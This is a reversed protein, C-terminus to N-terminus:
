RAGIPDLSIPENFLSSRTFSSRTKRKETVPNRLRSARLPYDEQKRYIVAVVRPKSHRVPHSRPHLKIYRHCKQRDVTINTNEHKSSLGDLSLRPRSSKNRPRKKWLVLLIRSPLEKSRSFRIGYNSRASSPISFRPIYFVRETLTHFQFDLNLRSVIITTRVAIGFM